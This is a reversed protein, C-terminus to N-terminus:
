RRGRLARRVWVVHVLVGFVPGVALSAVTRAAVSGPLLLVLASCVTATLWGLAYARHGGLALTAAGTLTLLAVLAATLTLGGLVVPDVRYGERVVEMLWPGVLAAAVAGVAGVAGIVGALRLLPRAGQDRHSLFHTIAVGQYANLPILLPARTLQIALLIPAALEFTEQPTTVRLLVPFGVVLAASSAAGVMAQWSARLFAPGATDARQRRTARIQPVLTLLLWTAAAATTAIQLGMLSAGALGVAAVLVLRMLAEAGVLRSYDSWNGRGALSGAVSSHGAFALTGLVVLAVRPYPAPGLVTHAWAPSTVAVAAALAGGVLLGHRLVLAGHDAAAPAPESTRAVHVSRTVASQLGGLTGFLFFLLGWFVLFDANAAKDLVNAAIVLAVYGSAAAVLSAVGVGATSRATPGTPDTGPNASM